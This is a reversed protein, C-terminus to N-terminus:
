EWSSRRRRTRRPALGETLSVQLAEFTEARGADEYERRLQNLVRGLLTLAWSRDFIREPTLEHALERAYRGEADAADISISPRGGGRKLTKASARRNTLYHAACRGCSHGFGVGNRTPRRLFVRRWYGRLFDQTLDQAQESSYGRRRIYAYLPYWYANCLAALSERAKPGGPSGAAVVRSWHTSPFQGSAIREPTSKSVRKEEPLRGAWARAAFSSRAVTCAIGDRLRHEPKSVFRRAATVVERSVEVNSTVLGPRRSRFLENGGIM